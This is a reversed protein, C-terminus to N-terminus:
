WLDEVLWRPYNFSKRKDLSANPKFDLFNLHRLSPNKQNNTSRQDFNCTLGTGPFSLYMWSPVHVYCWNIALHTLSAAKIPPNPRVMPGTWRDRKVTPPRFLFLIVTSSVEFRRVLMTKITFHESILGEVVPKSDVFKLVTERLQYSM